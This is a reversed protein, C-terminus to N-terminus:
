RATIDSYGGGSVDPDQVALHLQMTGHVASRFGLPLEPFLDLSLRGVIPRRGVPDFSGDLRLPAGPHWEATEITSKGGPSIPASPVGGAATKPQPLVVAWAPGVTPLAAAVLPRCM